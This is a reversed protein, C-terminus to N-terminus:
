AAGTTILSEVLALLEGPGHPKGLFKSGTPLAGVDVSFKGSVVILQIPPWRHRIYRALRVGDMGGPMDVDTIVLRISADAELIAIAETANGAETVEYGADQLDNALGLRILAEDEVVLLKM